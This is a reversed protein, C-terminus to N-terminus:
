KGLILESIGYVELYIRFPESSPTYSESDSPKQVKDMM